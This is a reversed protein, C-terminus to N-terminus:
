SKFEQTWCLTLSLLSRPAPPYSDPMIELVTPFYAAADEQGRVQPMSLGPNFLYGQSHDAGQLTESPETRRAKKHLCVSGPEEVSWRGTCRM